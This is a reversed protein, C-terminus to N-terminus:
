CDYCFWWCFWSTRKRFILIEERYALMLYNFFHTHRCYDVSINGWLYVTEFTIKKWKFHNHLGFIGVSQVVTLLHSSSGTWHRKITNGNCVCINCLIVNNCCWLSKPKLNKEFVQNETTETSLLCNLYSKSM